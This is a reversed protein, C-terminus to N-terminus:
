VGCPDRRDDRNGKGASLHHIGFIAYRM